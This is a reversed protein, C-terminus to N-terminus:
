APVGVFVVSLDLGGSTYGGAPTVSLSLLDGETFTLPSIMGASTATQGAALQAFPTISSGNKRLDLTLIADAATRCRVWLQAQVLTGTFPVPMRIEDASVAAYGGPIMWATTSAALGSAATFVFIARKSYSLGHLYSSLIGGWEADNRDPLYHQLGNLTQSTSM